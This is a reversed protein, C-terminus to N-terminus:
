ISPFLELFVRGFPPAKSPSSDWPNGIRLFVGVFVFMFGHLFGGLQIMEGPTTWWWGLYKTRRRPWFQKCWLAIMPIWMSRWSIWRPVTRRHHNNQVQSCYPFSVMLLYASYQPDRFIGSIKPHNFSGKLPARHGGVVQLIMGTLLHNIVITITLKWSRPNHSGKRM